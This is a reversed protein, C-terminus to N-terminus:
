FSSTAQFSYGKEDLFRAEGNVYISRTINLSLGVYTGWHNRTEFHLSPLGETTKVQLKGDSYKIGAYPSFPGLKGAIGLATQWEKWKLYQKGLLFPLYLNELKQMIKKSSPLTFYQFDMGVVLAGFDLFIFKAGLAYSFHRKTKLKSPSPSSIPDWELKEQTVGLFTYLEMRRLLALSVYALNSEIEFDTVKSLNVESPKRVAKIKREEVFDFIYGSDLGIFPNQLGFLSKPLLAPSGPNGTYCAFTVFPFLILALFFKM